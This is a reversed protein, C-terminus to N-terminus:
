RPRGDTNCFTSTIIEFGSESDKWCSNTNVKCEQVAAIDIGAKKMFRIIDDFKKGCSNITM